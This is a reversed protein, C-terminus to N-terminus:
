NIQINKRTERGKFLTGTRLILVVAIVILFAIGFIKVLTGSIM